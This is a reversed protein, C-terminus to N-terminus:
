RVDVDNTNEMKQVTEQFGFALINSNDFIKEMKNDLRDKYKRKIKVDSTSLKALSQDYHIEFRGNDLLNLDENIM